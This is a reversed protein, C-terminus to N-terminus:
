WPKKSMLLKKYTDSDLTEAFLTGIRNAQVLADAIEDLTLPSFSASTRNDSPESPSPSAITASDPMDNVLLAQVQNLQSNALATQSDLSIPLMPKSLPLTPQSFSSQSLSSHPLLSQSTQTHTKSKKSKQNRSASLEERVHQPVKSCNNDLHRLLPTTGITVNQEMLETCFPCYFWNPVLAGDRGVFVRMIYKYALSKSTSDYAVVYDGYDIHLQVIERTLKTGSVISCQDQNM